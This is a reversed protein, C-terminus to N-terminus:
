VHFVVSFYVDTSNGFFVAPNSTGTAAATLGVFEVTTGNAYCGAFVLSSAASAFFSVSGAMLASATFPLGSVIGTSGTGIANVTIHGQAHVLRGVKTYTGSQATYTTSGGLSPTWSGEEYDDLTNAGASANQTAPFAIQGAGAASADITGGVTANRSIFLDRPRTAGSKGIDYTADTFKLDHALSTLLASEVATVEDQLANVDAAANTDVGDTKTTFSKASSPYSASM